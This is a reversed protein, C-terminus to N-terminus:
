LKNFYEPRCLIVGTGMIYCITNKHVKCYIITRIYIYIWKDLRLLHTRALEKIM